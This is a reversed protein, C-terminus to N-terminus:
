MHVCVGCLGHAPVLASSPMPPLAFGGQATHGGSLPQAQHNEQHGRKGRVTPTIELQGPSRPMGTEVTGVPPQPSHSLSSPTGPRPGDESPETLRDQSASTPDLGGESGPSAPCPTHLPLGAESSGPPCVGLDGARLSPEPRPRCPRPAWCCPVFPGKHQVVWGQALALAASHARLPLGWGECALALPCYGNAYAEGLLSGDGPLSPHQVSELAGERVGLEGAWAM